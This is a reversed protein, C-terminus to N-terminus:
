LIGGWDCYGVGDGLYGAGQLDQNGLAQDGAKHEYGLGYGPVLSKSIMRDDRQSHRDTFATCVARPCSTQWGDDQIYATSM